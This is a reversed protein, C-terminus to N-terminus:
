VGAPGAGGAGQPEQSEEPCVVSDRLANEEEQEAKCDNCRKTIRDHKCRGQGGCAYCQPRRRGHAQCILCDLCHYKRNGHACM